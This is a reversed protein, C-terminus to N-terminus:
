AHPPPSESPPRGRGFLRRTVRREQRRGFYVFRWFATYLIWRTRRLVQFRIWGLPHWWIWNIPKWWIWAAANRLRWWIWTVANRLRWWVWLVPHRWIWIAASSLRWGAWAGTTRLDKFVHSLLAALDSTQKAVPRRFGVLVAIPLPWWGTDHACLAITFVVLPWVEYFEALPMWADSRDPVPHFPRSEWRRDLLWLGLYAVLVAAAWPATMGVAVAMAVLGAIEIYLALWGLRLTARRGRRVVFTQVNALRDNSRDVSQHNLIGRVGFGFSWVLAGAFALKWGATATGQEVVLVFAFATPAVHANLADAIVGLLGRGKLRLPRVSYIMPLVVLLGLLAIAASGPRVLLWPAIGWSYTAAILTMRQLPSIAAVMNPKDAAADSGIDAWDNVLHAAAALGVASVLMAGLRVLTPAPEAIATLAAMTAAALVPLLKPAWWLQSRVGSSLPSRSRSPGSM